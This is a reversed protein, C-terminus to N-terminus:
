RFRVDRESCEVDDPPQWMDSALEFFHPPVVMSFTEGQEVNRRAVRERRVARPADVVHITLPHAVEDVREYFAAREGRQILGIELVVNTGVALVSVAVAWIQELCRDRREVYWEVVGTAPREDDGFLRAMWADLTFRVAHHERCLQAAFTSKGAGVPGIVLHAQAM